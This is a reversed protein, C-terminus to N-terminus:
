IPERLIEMSLLSFAAQCMVGVVVGIWLNGTWEMLLVGVLFALAPGLFTGILCGFLFRRNRPSPDDKRNNDDRM